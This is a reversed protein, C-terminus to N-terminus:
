LDRFFYLANDCGWEDGPTYLRFGTAILNNASHINWPATYTIAREFGLRRAYTLRVNILRRQIGAGRAVPLVGARCLFIRNGPSDIMGAYAVPSGDLEATWWWGKDIPIHNGGGEHEGFVRRDLLSLLAYVRLSAHSGPSHIRRIKM